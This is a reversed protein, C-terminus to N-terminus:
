KHYRRQEDNHHRHKLKKKDKTKRGSKNKRHQKPTLIVQMQLITMTNTSDDNESCINRMTVDKKMSTPIRMGKMFVETSVIHKAKRQITCIAEEQDILRSRTPKQCPCNIMSSWFVGLVM